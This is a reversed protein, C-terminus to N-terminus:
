LRTALQNLTSNTKVLQQTTELEVKEIRKNYESEIDTRRQFKFLLFDHEDVRRKNFDLQGGLDSHSEKLERVNEM